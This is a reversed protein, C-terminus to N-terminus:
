FVMVRNREKIGNERMFKVMQILSLEKEMNTTLPFSDKMFTNTLNTTIGLAMSLDMQILNVRIGNVLIFREQFITYSIFILSMQFKITCATM